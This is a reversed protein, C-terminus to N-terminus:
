SPQIFAYRTSYRVPDVPECHIQVVDSWFRIFSVKCSKVFEAHTIVTHNTLDKVFFVKDYNMLDSM